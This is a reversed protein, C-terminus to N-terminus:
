GLFRSRREKNTVASKFSDAARGLGQLIDRAGDFSIFTFVSVFVDNNKDSLIIPRQRTLRSMTYGQASKLNETVDKMNVFLTIMDSLNMKKNIAYIKVFMKGLDRDSIGVDGVIEKAIKQGKVDESEKSLLTLEKYAQCKNLFKKTEESVASTAMITEVIKTDYKSGVTYMYDTGTYYYRKHMKINYRELLDKVIDIRESIMKRMKEFEDIDDKIPYRGMLHYFNELHDKGMKKGNNGSKGFMKRYQNEILLKVKELVGFQIFFSEKYSYVYHDSSEGGSILILFQNMGELYKEVSETQKTYSEKMDINPISKILEEASRFANDLSEETMSVIWKANQKSIKNKKYNSTIDDNSFKSKIKDKLDSFINKEYLVSENTKKKEKYEKEIDDAYEKSEDDYQSFDIESNPESYLIDFICHAFDSYKKDQVSSKNIQEQIKDKCEDTFLTQIFNKNVMKNNMLENLEEYLDRYKEYLNYIKKKCNDFFIPQKESIKNNPRKSKIEEDKFRNMYNTIDKLKSLFMDDYMNISQEDNLDKVFENWIEDKENQTLSKDDYTYKNKSKNGSISDGEALVKKIEKIIREITQEIYEEPLINKLMNIDNKKVDDIENTFKKFLIGYFLVRSREMFRYYNNWFTKGFEKTESNFSSDDLMDMQDDNIVMTDREVNKKLLDGEENTYNERDQELSEKFEKDSYIDEVVQKVNNKDFYKDVVSGIYVFPKITKDTNEKGTYRIINEDIDDALQAMILKVNYDKDLMDRMIWSKSIDNSRSEKTFERANNALDAKKNVSLKSVPTNLIEDPLTKLWEDYLKNIHKNDVPIHRKNLSDKMSNKIDNEFKEKAAKEEKPNIQETQGGTKSDVYQKVYEPIKNPEFNDPSINNAVDKVLNDNIKNSPVGASQLAKKIQPAYASALSVGNNNKNSSNVRNSQANTGDNNTPNSTSDEMLGKRIYEEYLADSVKFKQGNNKVIIKM